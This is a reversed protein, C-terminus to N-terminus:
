CPKFYADESVYRMFVIQERKVVKSVTGSSMGEALSMLLISSLLIFSFAFSSAPLQLTRLAVATGSLRCLWKQSDSDQSRM